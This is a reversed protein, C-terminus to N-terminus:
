ENIIRKIADDLEIKNCGLDSSFTQNFYNAADISINYKLFLTSILKIFRERHQLSLKIHDDRIKFSNRNNKIFYDVKKLVDDINDRCLRSNYNDYWIDRGGVSKTSVVPIGCLLYESSARCQGEHSSLIIGCKSQNIKECINESTLLKNNIYKINCKINDSFFNDTIKDPNSGILCINKLKEILSHRKCLNFRAVYIVDYLKATKISTFKEYDIFANSNIFEYNFNFSNINNQIETESNLLFIFNNKNLKYKNILDNINCFLKKDHYWSCRILFIDTEKIFNYSKDFLTQVNVNDLHNKFIFIRLKYSKFYENFSIRM